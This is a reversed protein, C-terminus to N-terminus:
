RVRRGRQLVVAPERLLEIQRLVDGRVLLVDAYKGPTLTGVEADV